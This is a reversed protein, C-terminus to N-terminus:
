RSFCRVNGIESVQPMDKGLKVSMENMKTYMKDFDDMLEAKTCKLRPDYRVKITYGSRCFIPSVPSVFKNLANLKFSSDWSSTPNTFPQHLTHPTHPSSYVVLFFVLSDSVM